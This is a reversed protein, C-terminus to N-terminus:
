QCPAGGVGYFVWACTDSRALRAGNGTSDALSSKDNMSAHDDGGVSGEAESGAKTSRGVPAALATGILQNDDVPVEGPLPTTSRSSAANVFAAMADSPAAVGCAAM